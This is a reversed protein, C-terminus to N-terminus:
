ASRHTAAPHQLGGGAAEAVASLLEDRRLPKNLVRWAGFKEACELFDVGADSGGGSIAIVKVDSARTLEFILNLGSEDPLFIDTIVVDPHHAGYSALAGRAGSACFVEHGVKTLVDRLVDLLDCEDEVVLIRAM